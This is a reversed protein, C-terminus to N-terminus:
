NGGSSNGEIEEVLELTDAQDQMMGTTMDFGSANVVAMILPDVGYAKLDDLSTLDSFDPEVVFNRIIEVMKEDPIDQPAGSQPLYENANGQTLPQVKVYVQEEGVGGCEPCAREDPEPAVEEGEDPEVDEIIIGSGDCNRCPETKGPIPEVVPELEGDGDRKHEFDERSAIRVNEDNNVDVM